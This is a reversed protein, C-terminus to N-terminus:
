HRQREKLLEAGRRLSTGRWGCVITERDITKPGLRIKESGRGQCVLIKSPYTVISDAYAHETGSVTPGLGRPNGALLRESLRFNFTGGM